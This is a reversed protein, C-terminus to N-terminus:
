SECTFICDYYNTNIITISHLALKTPLSPRCPGQQYLHRFCRHGVRFCCVGIHTYRSTEPRGNDCLRCQTFEVYVSMPIGSIITSSRSHGITHSFFSPHGVKLPGKVHYGFFRGDLEVSISRDVFIIRLEKIICVVHITRWIIREEIKHHIFIRFLLIVQKNGCLGGSGYVVLHMEM